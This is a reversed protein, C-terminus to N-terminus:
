GFSRAGVDARFSHFKRSLPDDPNLSIAKRHDELGQITKPTATMNPFHQRWIRVEAAGPLRAM